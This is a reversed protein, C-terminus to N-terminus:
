GRIDSQFSMVNDQVPIHHRRANSGGISNTYRPLCPRSPPSNKKTIYREVLTVSMHQLESLGFRVHLIKPSLVLLVSSWAGPNRSNLYHCAWQTRHSTTQILTPKLVAQWSSLGGVQGNCRVPLDFRMTWVEVAIFGDIYGRARSDAAFQNWAVLKGDFSYV